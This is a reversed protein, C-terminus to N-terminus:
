SVPRIATVAAGGVSRGLIYAVIVQVYFLLVLGVLVPSLLLAVLSGVVLVIAALFCGAVYQRTAVVSWLAGTQFAAKLRGQTALAVFAAPLHTWCVVVLLALVAAVVGVLLGARTTLLDPSVSSPTPLGQVPLLTVAALATGTALAVLPLLGWVVFVFVAKLGDALLRGWDGFAPPVGRGRAGANMVRLLYGELLLGPILLPSSLVLAGGILLDRTAGERNRPFGLSQRLM